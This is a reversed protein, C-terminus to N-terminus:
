KKKWFDIQGIQKAFNDKIKTKYDWNLLNEQM